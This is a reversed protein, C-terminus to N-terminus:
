DVKKPYHFWEMKGSGFKLNSWHDRSFSIIAAGCTPVNVIAGNSIANVFDTLGPNHGFLLAIEEDDNKRDPIEQVVQLIIEKEAHYLRQDVIVKNSPFDLKKTIHRCTEMTRVAPSSIMYDPTIKMEHLLKGMRPADKEGRKNLPRDFDDLSPDDWSSKAHRIIILKKM